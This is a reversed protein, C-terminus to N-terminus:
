KRKRTRFRRRKGISGSKKQEQEIRFTPGPNHSHPNGGHPPRHATDPPIEEFLDAAAPAPHETNENESWSDQTSMDTPEEINTQSVSKPLSEVFRKNDWQLYLTWVVGLVIVALATFIVQKMESYNGINPPRRSPLRGQSLVKANM